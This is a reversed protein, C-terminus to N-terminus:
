QLQLQMHSDLEKNEQIASTSVREVRSTMLFIAGIVALLSTIVVALILASGNGRNQLFKIRTMKIEGLNIRLIFLIRLSEGRYSEASSM